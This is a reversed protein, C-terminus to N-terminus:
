PQGGKAGAPDLEKEHEEIVNLARDMSERYLPCNRYHEDGECNSATTIRDSPILKKTPSAQCFVMTVQTLYPCAM